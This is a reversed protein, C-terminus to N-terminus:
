RAIVIRRVAQPKRSAAQPKGCVFYVGPPLDRVDNAGPRLDLVKRGTADMLSAAQPKHSTAGPLFLIGRVISADSIMVGREDNVEEVGPPADPYVLIVDSCGVYICRQDPNSTIRLPSPLPPYVGVLSDTQTDYVKLFSSSDAYAQFFLYRGTYDLWACRYSVYGTAIRATVTDSTADIALVSDGNVLFWYLKHTTDSYALFTGMCTGDFYPWDITKLLSLSSSSRVELRHGRVLYVKEGDGTHAVAFVADIASDVLVSDTRCDILVLSSSVNCLIRGNDLYEFWRVLDYVDITRVVSDTYCDVVAIYYRPGTSAFCYVKNEDPCRCPFANRDCDGIEIVKLLSDGAGDLVGLGSREGFRGPTTWFYFKNSTRSYTMGRAGRTEPLFAQTVVRNTQEDIVGVGGLSSGWRAYLRGTAPNHNMVLEWGCLPVAGRAYTSDSKHDFVALEAAESSGCTFMIRHRAPDSEIVFPHLYWEMPYQVPTVSVFDLSAGDLEVLSGGGSLYYLRNHASDCAIAVPPDYPWVDKKRTGTDGSCDFEYLHEVADVAYLRDTAENCALRPLGGAGRWQKAAIVSDAPTSVVFLTDTLAGQRGVVYLKQRRKNICLGRSSKIADINAVVSDASCSIARVADRTAAYVKNTTPDHAMATLGKGVSIVERVTDAACDIVSVTCDITDGCYLKDSGSSYCLLKPRTGVEISGVISNTACDIVGIRGQQPYSCYLRNHQSVLLAGGVPTGTNIRKIRQFTNGEVVIIDSSESAVYINDTSSGFAVHYPPRLPGLSDPLLITDPVPLGRAIGAGLVMAM